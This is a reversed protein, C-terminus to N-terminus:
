PLPAPPTLNKPFRPVVIRRKAQYVPDFKELTAPDHVNEATILYEGTSKELEKGGFTVDDGELYRVLTWTGLFGMYYPDQLILGDVEGEAVAQLLPQSSDFGMLRVKRHLDLSRLVDLVGSASSENPAFIGDIQTGLQQILPAAERSASDRTAGAYKDTSLWNVKPPPRKRPRKPNTKAPDFYDLFGQERRETSESGVQYRLLVLRPETKGDAELVAHLREGAMWGGNYNDTAVYKVILSPDALGSDIIVVPVGEEKARKVPAIMIQSHQPALVIGDVGTAVRRDVIQIQDFADQERLPGDWIIEVRAKRQLGAAELERAAREAGRHISQWFEHTMGKPVVVIRYVDEPGQCGALALLAGVALLVDRRRFRLRSLLRSPILKM